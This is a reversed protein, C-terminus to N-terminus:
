RLKQIGKNIASYAIIGVVLGALVYMWRIETIIYLVLALLVMLMMIAVYPVRFKLSNIILLGFSILIGYFVDGIVENFFINYLNFPMTPDIM